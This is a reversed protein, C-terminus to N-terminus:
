RKTVICAHSLRVSLNRMALGRRCEMCRPLLTATRLLNNYQEYCVANRVKITLLDVLWQSAFLSFYEVIVTASRLM